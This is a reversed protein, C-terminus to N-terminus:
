NEKTEKSKNKSFKEKVISIITYFDNSFFFFLLGVGVCISADAINFIYQFFEFNEGGVFPMWEPWTFEFLPFYLMDVVKGEFLPAYGGGAPFLTAIEPPWPDNFIRGYFLCDFINGAAGATILSIAVLGGTRLRKDKWIKSILYGLFCVAVIRISTLLVKSWLQWGFAMGNNEIFRLKFWSTVSYEEGLYFNTKVWIKLCQDAIIVALIILLALFGRNRKM